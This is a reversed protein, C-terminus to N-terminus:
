LPLGRRYYIHTRESHGFISAELAIYDLFESGNDATISKVVKFAEKEMSREMDNIARKVAAQTKDKIKHIIL